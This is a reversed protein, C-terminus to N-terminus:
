QGSPQRGLAVLTSGLLIAAGGVVVSLTLADNFFLIGTAAGVLPELNLFVGATAAPVHTAGVQWTVLALVTSIM